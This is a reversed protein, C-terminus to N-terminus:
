AADDVAVWMNPVDTEGKSRAGLLVTMYFDVYDSPSATADDIPPREGGVVKERVESAFRLESWPQKCTLIEWMVVGFSYVDVVPGYTARDWIEPAMWAPTGRGSTMSFNSAGVGKAMGGDVSKAAAVHLKMKALGFDAIKCRGDDDL